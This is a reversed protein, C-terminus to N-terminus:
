GGAQCADAMEQVPQWEEYALETAMEEYEYARHSLRRAVLNLRTACQNLERVTAMSGDGVAAVAEQAQQFLDAIEEDVTPASLGSQVIATQM